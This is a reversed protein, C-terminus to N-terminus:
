KLAFIAMKANLLKKKDKQQVKPIKSYKLQNFNHPYQEIGQLDSDKPNQKKVFVNM